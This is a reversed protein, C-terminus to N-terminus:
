GLKSAAARDLLITVSQHNRLASAPSTEDIPGELARAVAEAKGSGFALLVIDRARLITGIGQTVAQTPVQELRGDFFRANAERTEATLDVVRTLSDHASGPENFGIHGNHGIGLIQLDVGGVAAIGTEYAQAASGFDAASGDPVSVRGPDLGLGRTVEEDIVSRYSQPLEPDIGVYEDLAFARVLSLDLGDTDRLARLARYVPSPTSGTAVGLVAAPRSRILTSIREAALAAASEADDTVIVRPVVLTTSTM